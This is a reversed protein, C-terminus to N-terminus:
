RSGLESDAGYKAVKAQDKKSNLDVASKVELFYREARDDTALVYTVLGSWGLEGTPLKSLDVETVNAGPPAFGV